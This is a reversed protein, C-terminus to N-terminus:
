ESASAPAGCTRSASSARGSRARRRRALAVKVDAVTSRAARALRRRRRDMGAVAEERLVGLEGLRHDRRAEDPDPRRRGRDAGHAELVGGLPQHRLRAHRHRRAIEAFVLRGVRSAASAGAIPQGTSILATAPPPPLPMRRTSRASSKAAARAPRPALRGRGEAVVPHQQLFVDGAGAVDLHLHEAVRVAFTTWRNSRSQESCRRWWFTISSAGAGPM